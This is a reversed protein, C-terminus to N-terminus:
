AHKTEYHGVGPTLKKSPDAVMDTGGTNSITYGGIKKRVGPGKDRYFGSMDYDPRVLYESPLVRQERQFTFKPGNAGPGDFKGDQHYHGPGPVKKPKSNRNTKSFM